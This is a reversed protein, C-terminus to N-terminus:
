GAPNTPLAGLQRLMTLDDRIAWREAIKGDELRFVFVVERAYEGPEAEFGLFPGGPWQGGRVGHQVVFDGEAIVTLQEWGDTAFRRGFSSALFERTGELGQPRGSALAHNVMDPTCLEDLRSLDHTNLMADFEEVVAKNRGADSM